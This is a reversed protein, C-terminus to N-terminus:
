ERKHMGLKKELYHIDTGGAVFRRDSIIDKQLDINTKIGEIVIESLAGNMRAIASQRTSGYTILKGIMSDYYPPVTYGNYIHSDMRVGPGGPAHYLTIKGPSPLFTKSDEANIRCEIAHGHIVIDEQRYRLPQGSAIGIQEKIIDVWTIM